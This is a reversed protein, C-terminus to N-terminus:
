DHDRNGYQAALFIARLCSVVPLYKTFYCHLTFYCNVCVMQRTFLVTALMDCWRKQKNAIIRAVLQSLQECREEELNGLINGYLM